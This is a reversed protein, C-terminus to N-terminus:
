YTMVFLAIQLSSGTAIGLSLDMKNKWACWVATSHEAANGVFAIVVVGVFTETLGLTHRAAEISGVLVESLWAVLTTAIALAAISQWLPWPAEDGEGSLSPGEFLERHTVLHFLLSLFYTLFLVLAIAVSLQAEITATWGASHEAAAVHIVSQTWTTGSKTLKYTVGCGGECSGSGGTVATGYLNGAADLTVGKYPEGGDAGGTFSYLVTHVWGGGVPSLQWVTGGGFDGGLVSAGYLNGEADIAVDTDTYEGDDDGALSYIVETTSAKVGSGYLAILLLIAAGGILRFFRREQGVISSALSFEKSNTTTM